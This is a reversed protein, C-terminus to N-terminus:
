ELDPVQQCNLNNFTWEYQNPIFIFTLELNKVGGKVKMTVDPFIDGPELLAPDINAKAETMVDSGVITEQCDYKENATGANIVNTIYDTDDTKKLTMFCGRLHSYGLYFEEIGQDVGTCLIGAFSTSSLSLTAFVMLLVKM